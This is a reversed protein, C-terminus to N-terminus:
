AGRQAAGGCRRTARGGRGGDELAELTARMYESIMSGAGRGVALSATRSKLESIRRRTAEAIKAGVSRPWTVGLTTASPSSPRHCQLLLLRATRVRFAEQRQLKTVAETELDVVKTLGGGMESASSSSKWRRGVHRRHEAAAAAAQRAHAAALRREDALQAELQQLARGEDM